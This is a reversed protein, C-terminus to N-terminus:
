LFSNNFRLFIVYVPSHLYVRYSYLIFYNYINKHEVIVNQHERLNSWTQSLGRWTTTVYKDNEVIIYKESSTIVYSYLM